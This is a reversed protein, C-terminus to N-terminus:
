PPTPSRGSAGKQHDGGRVPVSLPLSNNVGGTIVELNVGLYHNRCQMKFRLYTLFIVVRRNYWRM